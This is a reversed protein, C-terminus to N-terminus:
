FEGIFRYILFGVIFFRLKEMQLHFRQLKSICTYLHHVGPQSAARERVTIPSNPHLLTQQEISLSVGPAYIYIFPIQDKQEEM